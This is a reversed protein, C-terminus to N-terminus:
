GQEGTNTVSAIAADWVEQDSAQRGRWSIFRSRWVIMEERPKSSPAPASPHRYLAILELNRESAYRKAFDLADPKWWIRIHDSGTIVTYAVPEANSLAARVCMSAYERVQDATFLDASGAVTHVRGEPYPLEPLGEINTNDTM